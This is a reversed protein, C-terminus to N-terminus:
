IMVDHKGYFYPLVGHFRYNYGMLQHQIEVHGGYVM